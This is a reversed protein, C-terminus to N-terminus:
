LIKLLLAALLSYALSQLSDMDTTLSYFPYPLMDKDSEMNFSFVNPSTVLITVQLEKYAVRFLNAPRAKLNSSRIPSKQALDM